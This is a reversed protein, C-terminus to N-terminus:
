EIGFDFYYQTANSLESHLLVKKAYTLYNARKNILNHTLVAYISRLDSLKLKSIRQKGSEDRFFGELGMKKLRNTALINFSANFNNSHVFREKNGQFLPINSTLIPTEADNIFDDSKKAIPNLVATLKGENEIFSCHKYDDLCMRMSESFFRRGSLASFGICYYLLDDNHLLNEMKSIYPKIDSEKIYFRGNGDLNKQATKEQKKTLKRYEDASLKMCDINMVSQKRFETRYWSIARRVTFPQYISKLRSVENEFATNLTEQSNILLFEILKSDMQKNM